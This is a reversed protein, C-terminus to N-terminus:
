AEGRHNPLTKFDNGRMTKPQYYIIAVDYIATQKDKIM